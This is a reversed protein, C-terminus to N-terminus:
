DDVKEFCRDSKNEEEIVCVEDKLLNLQKQVEIKDESEEGANYGAYQDADKLRNIQNQVETKDQSERGSNFGSYHCKDNEPVEQEVEFIRPSNDEAMESNEEDVVLDPKGFNKDKHADFMTEDLSPRITRMTSDNEAHIKSCLKKLGNEAIKYMIAQYLGVFWNIFFILNIKLIDFSVM